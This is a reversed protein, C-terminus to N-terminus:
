IEVIPLRNGSDGSAKGPRKMSPSNYIASEYGSKDTNNDRWVFDTESSHYIFFGPSPMWMVFESLLRRDTEGKFQQELISVGLRNGSSPLYETAIGFKQTENGIGNTTVDPEIGGFASVEQQKNIRYIARGGDLFGIGGFGRSGLRGTQLEFVSDPQWGLWLEYLRTQSYSSRFDRRLRADVQGHFKGGFLQEFSAKGRMSPEFGESGGDANWGYMGASFRGNVIPNALGWSSGLLLAVTM